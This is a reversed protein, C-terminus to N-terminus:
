ITVVKRTKQRLFFLFHMRYKRLYWPLSEAHMIQKNCLLIRGVDVEFAVLLFLLWIWFRLWTFGPPIELTECIKRGKSSRNWIRNKFFEGRAGFCDRRCGKRRDYNRYNWPKKRKLPMLFGQCWPPQKELTTEKSTKQQFNTFLGQPTKLEWRSKSPDM